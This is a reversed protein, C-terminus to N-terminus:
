TCQEGADVKAWRRGCVCVCVCVRVRGYVCVCVCVYCGVALHHVRHLIDEGRQVFQRPEMVGHLHTDIDCLMNSYETYRFLLSLTYELVSFHSM